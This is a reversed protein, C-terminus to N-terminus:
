GVKKESKIWQWTRSLGDAFGTRPRWGLCHDAKSIDLVIEPVDFPRKPEHKLGVTIGTVKQIMEILQNLTVRQGGGINLIECGAQATAALLCAQVLDGVYFFDRV